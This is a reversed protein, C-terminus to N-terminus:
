RLDPAVLVTARRRLFDRHQAQLRRVAEQTYDDRVAPLAAEYPLAAPPKNAAVQVFHVGDAQTIPASLQGAPTRRAAEFLTAGLHIRAAFYFEQGKVRGTDHGGFQALVTAVPAGSRLARAAAAAKAPPFVLDRATIVGEDAFRDRHAEYWARLVSPAPAKSLADAAVSQEVANVTAARVDPDAGAVDLEKGRQVLLEEAVLDDLAKRKQEPTAEAPDVDYLARLSAVYDSRAIPQGNVLAVDEAPVILTTAGRATFLAGGAFLLGTVAGVACLALSRRPATRRPDLWASRARPPAEQLVTSM